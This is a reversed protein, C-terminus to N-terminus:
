LRFQAPDRCLKARRRHMQAPEEMEAELLPRSPPRVATPPVEMPSRARTRVLFQTQAGTLGQIAEQLPPLRLRQVPVLPLEELDMPELDVLDVELAKSQAELAVSEVQDLVELM